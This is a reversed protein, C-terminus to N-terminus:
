DSIATGIHQLYTLIKPFGFAEGLLEKNFHCLGHQECGHEQVTDAAAESADIDLQQVGDEMRKREGADDNSEQGHQVIM